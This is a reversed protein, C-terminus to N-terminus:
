MLKPSQWGSHRVEIASKIGFFNEIEGLLTVQTLKAKIMAASSAPEPRGTNCCPVMSPRNLRCVSPM